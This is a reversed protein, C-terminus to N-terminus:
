RATGTTQESPKQRTNATKKIEALETRALESQADLALAKELAVQAENTRGLARLAAGALAFRIADPPVTPENALMTREDYLAALRKYLAMAEDKLGRHELALAKYYYHESWPEEPQTPSNLPEDAARRWLAEAEDSKGGAELERAAAVYERAQSQMAPRGVGLNRPYETAKLYEEAAKLHDGAQQYGRALNKHAARYVLLVSEEGEGSTFTSNALLDAAEAYRHAGVYVSALAQLFSAHARVSAPARELSKIRRSIDGMEALLGDFEVYLRYDDPAEHLARTYALAAADRRNATLWLARAYNRRAIINAPDNVVAVRWAALAEAGRDKAALVNGLYYAARGDRPNVALAARLIKIEEARHPFVFATDGRAGLAYLERARAREGGIDYFYGLTYNLMPPTKQGARKIAETLIAKCEDFRGVAAYDFCLELAQDADRSLLRWLDEHAKNTEAEKGRARNIEIQESLALYDLPMEAVVRAIIEATDDTQGAVRKALALLTRARVDSPDLAVATALHQLAEDTHKNTLAIEGLEYRALAERYGARVAWWLERQAEGDHGMARETLALYYHAAGADPNRRLARALHQAAQEYEGSRYYSLGLAIRAPSFEFDRALAETYAARADRDRSKKEANVGVLYAQEASGAVPADPVPRTASKFDPNGDVPTDTRYSILERGDASRLKIILPAARFKDPLAINKTLPNAPDLNIKQTAIKEGCAEVSLQADPFRGSANAALELQDGHRVVHLAVDRTAENWGGGLHALPFWYETFREVRHPAIMEHEIQTEYRGAQFEVYQGDNDTLKDIWIAGADDTGWTWTKKGPLERHDAIHAIGWDSKEYYVGFFDRRSNRAFLSLYNTVDRYASLDVGKEKPFSYIPWYAHPYAERMPYVFRLDDTAPAAATAWYWYRGPTERRNNLTVETEVIKRDPRLRIVVQWQMRQIRETDGVTLTASGDAEMRTVYDIPSVSTVTHGDPFNWEIGGSIWAGRIGVMAYKIVHNTYLVDRNQAKDYIQYVHGGLEPLVVVRLYENELYVARYTRERRENTLSDLMAYPYVPRWKRRGWDLIQPYPNPEGLEYTPIALPAEWVRATATQARLMMPAYLAILMLCCSRILRKHKQTM